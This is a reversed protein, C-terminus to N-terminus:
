SSTACATFPREEAEVTADNPGSRNESKKSGSSVAPLATILLSARSLAYKGDFSESDNSNFRAGGRETM